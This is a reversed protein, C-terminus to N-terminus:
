NFVNVVKQQALAPAIGLAITGLVALLAVRRM